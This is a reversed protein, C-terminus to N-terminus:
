FPRSDISLTAKGKSNATDRDGSKRYEPQKEKPTVTPPAMNNNYYDPM